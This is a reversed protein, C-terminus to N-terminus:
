VQGDGGGVPDGSGDGKGQEQEEEPGLKEVEPPFIRELPDLGADVDKRYLRAEETSLTKTNVMYKGAGLPLRVEGGTETLDEVKHFPKRGNGPEAWMVLMYSM